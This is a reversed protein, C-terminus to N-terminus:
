AQEEEAEEKEEDSGANFRPLAGAVSRFRNKERL